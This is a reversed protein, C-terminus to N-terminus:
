IRENCSLQSCFLSERPAAFHSVRPPLPCNLLAVVFCSSLMLFRVKLQLAVNNVNILQFGKARFQQLLLASPHQEAAAGAAAAGGDGDGDGAPASLRLLAAINSTLTVTVNANIDSIHFKEVFFWTSLVTDASATPNHGASLHLPDGSATSLPNSTAM